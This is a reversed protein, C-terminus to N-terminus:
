LSFSFFSSFHFVQIKRVCSARLAAVDNISADGARSSAARHLAPAAAESPLFLELLPASIISFGRASPGQGLAVSGVSVYRPFSGVQQCLASVFRCGVPRRGPGSGAGLAGRKFDANM